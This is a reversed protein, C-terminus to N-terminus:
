SREPMDRRRLIWAWARLQLITWGTAGIALLCLAVKSGTGMTGEILVAHIASAIVTFGVLITHGLRWIRPRIRTRFAALVAAAFLTWMALVGWLSFATPAAFLLADLLDPPSTIGLGVVHVVIALILVLGVIRHVARGRRAPLGPLHGGALLPQVLMLGLALVGAFGAIIYVPDRWQLYPSTAAVAMPVAIAVALSAWILVARISLM